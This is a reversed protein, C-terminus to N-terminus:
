HSFQKQLEELQLPNLGEYANVWDTSIEREAEPLALRGACVEQHLYNEVIDKEHFGPKPSAAEPFLNALDNSGGLELPIFHDAEYTGKAQPYTLGYEEYVQQKLATSVDRVNSAYGSACVQGATVDFVAGPTCDPDPYPGRVACHADKTRALLQLPASSEASVSTPQRGKVFYTGVSAALLLFIMFLRIKESTRM